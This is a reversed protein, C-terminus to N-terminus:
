PNLATVLAKVSGGRKRIFEQFIKRQFWALWFGLVRVNTIKYGKGARKLEWRVAYASGDSLFVKTDIYHADGRRWSKGSVEAKVVRYQQSMLAFYRSMYRAVGRYYRRRHSRALGARYAGLSYLAIGSVDAHTRIVSLFQKSSATRAANLLPAKVKKMFRVIPDAAANAPETGPLGLCLVAAAGALLRRRSIENREHRCTTM